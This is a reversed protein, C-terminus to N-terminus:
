LILGWNTLSFLKELYNFENRERRNVGVARTPSARLFLLTVDTATFYMKQKM